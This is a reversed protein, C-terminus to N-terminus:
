SAPPPRKRKEKLAKEPDPEYRSLGAKLLRQLLRAAQYQGGIGDDGANITLDDVWCPPSQWPKLHLVNCQSVYACWTAVDEWPEHELKSDIQRSRAPSELRAMETARELADEDVPDLPEGEDDASTTM